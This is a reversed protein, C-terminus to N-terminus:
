RKAAALATMSQACHPVVSCAAPFPVTVTIGTMKDFSSEIAELGDM